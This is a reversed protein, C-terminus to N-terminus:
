LDYGAYPDYADEASEPEVLASGYDTAPTLVDGNFEALSAHVVGNPVDRGDTLKVVTANKPDGLPALSVAQRIGSARVVFSDSEGFENKNGDTVIYFAM